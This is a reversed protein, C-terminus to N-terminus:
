VQYLDDRDANFRSSFYGDHSLWESIALQFCSHWRWPAGARQLATCCEAIIERGQLLLGM